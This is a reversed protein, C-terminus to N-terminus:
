SEEGTEEAEVDPGPEVETLIETDAPAEPETANEVETVTESGTPAKAEEDTEVDAITETDTPIEAEATTEIEAVTEAGAPVDTEVTTEEEQVDAPAQPTVADSDTVTETESQTLSDTEASTVDSETSDPAILSTDQTANTAKKQFWLYVPSYFVTTIGDTDKKNSEGLVTGTVIKESKLDKLNTNGIAAGLYDYADNVSVLEVRFTSGYKNKKCYDTVGEGVLVNNIYVNITGYPKINGESSYAIGGNVDFTYEQLKIDVQTEKSSNAVTYEVKDPMVYQKQWQASDAIYGQLEEASWTFNAGSPLYETKVTEYNSFTGDPQEYRVQVTQPCTGQSSLIFTLTDTYEGVVLGNDVDSAKVTIDKEFASQTTDASCTFKNDTTLGDASITYPVAYSEYKLNYNNASTIAVNLEHYPQVTGTVALTGTNTATDVAVTTPISITYSGEVTYTNNTDEAHAPSPAFLCVAALTLIGTLFKKQM